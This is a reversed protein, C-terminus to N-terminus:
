GDLAERFQNMCSGLADVIFVKWGSNIFYEKSFDDYVIAVRKDAWALSAQAEIGNKGTAEYDLTPVNNKEASYLIPELM